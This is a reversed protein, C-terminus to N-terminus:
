SKKIQNLIRKITQNMGYKRCFQLCRIIFSPRKFNHEKMYSEHKNLIIKEYKKLKTRRTRKKKLVGPIHYISTVQHIYEFNAKKGYQIWLDWDELLDLSEDMGGYKEFLERKFMVAQIPFMNRYFIIEHDFPEDYVINEEIVAYRSIDESFYQIKREIAPAHVADANSNNELFRFLVEIHSPLFTDDDDLFNVYKGRAQQLGINGAKTRGVKKGTAYYRILLDSFDDMNYTQPPGDEIIIVEFLKFSQSNLSVLAQHLMSPRNITRIIISVFVKVNENAAM